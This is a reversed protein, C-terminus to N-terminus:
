AEKSSRLAGYFNKLDRNEICEKPNQSNHSQITKLRTKYKEPQKVQFEVDTDLRAM